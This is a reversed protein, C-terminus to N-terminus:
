LQNSLAAGWNKSFSTYEHFFVPALVCGRGRSFLDVVLGDFMQFAFVMARYGLKKQRLGFFGLPDGQFRRLKRHGVKTLSVEDCLDLDAWFAKEFFATSTGKRTNM